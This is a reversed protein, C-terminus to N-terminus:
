RSLSEISTAEAVEFEQNLEEDYKNNTIINSDYRVLACLLAEQYSPIESIFEALITMAKFHCEEDVEGMPFLSYPAEYGCCISNLDICFNDGHNYNDIAAGDIYGKGFMWYMFGKDDIFMSEFRDTFAEGARFEYTRILKYIEKKNMTAAELIKNKKSYINYIIKKLNGLFPQV